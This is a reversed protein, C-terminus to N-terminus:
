RQYTTTRLIEIVDNGRDINTEIVLTTESLQIIEYRIEPNPLDLISSVTGDVILDATVQDYVIFDGNVDFGGTFEYVDPEPDNCDQSGSFRSSYTDNNNFILRNYEPCLNVNFWTGYLLDLDFSSNSSDDDGSCSVLAIALFLFVIKKM